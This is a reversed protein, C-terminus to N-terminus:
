DKLGKAIELIATALTRAEDRYLDVSLRQDSTGDGDQMQISLHITQSVVSRRVEVENPHQFKFRM